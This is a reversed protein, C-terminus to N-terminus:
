DFGPLKNLPDIPPEEPPAIGDMDSGLMDLIAINPHNSSENFNDNEKGQSEQRQEEQEELNEIEVKVEANEIEKEAQFEGQLKILKIIEKKIKETDEKLKLLNKIKGLNILKRKDIQIKVDENDVIIDIGLEQLNNMKIFQQVSTKYKYNLANLYRNILTLSIQGDKEFQFKIESLLELNAKMLTPDQVNENLQLAIDKWENNLLKLILEGFSHQKLIQIIYLKDKENSISWKRNLKIKLLLAWFDAQEEKVKEIFEEISLGWQACSQILTQETYFYQVRRDNFHHRVPVEGNSFLIINFYRSKMQVDVGKKEIAIKDNGSLFKLADFDKSSSIDGEDLVIFSADELVSNFNSMVRDSNLVKTYEQNHYWEIITSVFLNKGVGPNGFVVPITPMVKFRATNALWNIFWLLNGKQTIQLLYKFTWPCKEKIIEISDELEIESMDKAIEHAMKYNKSPVWLNVFKIFERQFVTPKGPNFEEFAELLIKKEFEEIFTFIFEKDADTVNLQNELVHMALMKVGDFIFAEGTDKHRVICTRNKNALRYYVYKETDVKELLADVTEIVEIKNYEKIFNKKLKIGTRQIIQSIATSKKVNYFKEWFTVLTYAKGDHFDYFIDITDNLYIAFSYKTDEHFPCKIAVHNSSEHAIEIDERILDVVNIGNEKLAYLLDREADKLESPRILTKNSYQYIRAQNLIDDADISSKSENLLSNKVRALISEVLKIYKNRTDVPLGESDLKIKNLISEIESDVKQLNFVDFDKALVKYKQNITGIVRQVHTIDAFTKDIEFQVKSFNGLSDKLIIDKKADSIIKKLYNFFTTAEEKTLERDIDFVLQLGSGTLGGLVPRIVDLHNSRLTEAINLYIYYLAFKIYEDELYGLIFREKTNFIHFDIDIVVKKIRKFTQINPPKINGNEDKNEPDYKFVAASISYGVNGLGYKSDLEKIYDILEDYSKIQKNSTFIKKTENIQIQPVIRITEDQNLEENEYLTLWYQKVKDFDHHTTLEFM